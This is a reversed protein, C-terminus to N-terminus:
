MMTLTPAMYGESTIFKIALCALSFYFNVGSFLCCGAMAPIALLSGLMAVQAKIMPFRKEFKDSIIGSGITSLLGCFLM